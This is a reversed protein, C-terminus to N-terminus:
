LKVSRLTRSSAVGMASLSGPMIRTGDESSSGTGCPLCHANVRHPQSDGRSPITACLTGKKQVGLIARRYAEKVALSGSPAAFLVRRPREGVAQYLSLQQVVREVCRKAAKAGHKGCHVCGMAAPEMCRREACPYTRLQTTGCPRSNSDAADCMVVVFPMGAPVLYEMADEDSDDDSADLLAETRTSLALGLPELGSLLDGLWGGGRPVLFAHLGTTSGQINGIHTCITHEARAVTRVLTEYAGPHHYGALGM